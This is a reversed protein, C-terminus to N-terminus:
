PTIYGSIEDSVVTYSGEVQDGLLFVIVIIGVAIGAAILAYELATAARSDAIFKSLLKKIFVAM